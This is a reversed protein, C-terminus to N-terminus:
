PVTRVSAIDVVAVSGTLGSRQGIRPTRLRLRRFTRQFRWRRATRRPAALTRFARPSLGSRLCACSPPINARMPRHNSRWHGTAAPFPPSRESDSIGPAASNRPSMRHDPRVVPHSRHRRAGSAVSRGQGTRPGSVSKRPPHAIMTTRESSPRSSIFGILVVVARWVPCQECIPWQATPAQRTAVFQCIESDPVQEEAYGVWRRWPARLAPVADELVRTAFGYAESEAKLTAGTSPDVKM